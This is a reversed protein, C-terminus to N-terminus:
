DRCAVPRTIDVGTFEFRAGGDESETVRVEWGHAEAISEVISLGLGTGQETTSYGRELVSDRETEPIGPGDDAVYFGDALGGVTVTVDASGHDLANRLLNELLQRLRDPDACVASDTDVVLTGDTTEITHWCSRAFEALSVQEVTDIVTGDHALTLLDAILTEMRDHARAVTDLHESKTEDRALELRLQAVNLPNRLDHSVVSAFEELHENSRQLDRRAIELEQERTKRATIDRLLIVYGRPSPGGAIDSVRVSYHRSDEDVSLTVEGPSEGDRTVDLQPVFASVPTGIGDADLDPVVSEAADNYDVLRTDGDVIFLPDEIEAVVVDRAIPAIDSFAHEFVAYAVGFAFVSIGLPAHNYTPVPTWGFLSAVAPVFGVSIGTALLITQARSQYRVAVLLEWLYYMGVTLGALVYALGVVRAPGVATEVHPFPDSHFVMSAYYLDHFPMTLVVGLLALYCLAFLRVVTNERPNRGTYAAVFVVWGLVAFLGAATWGVALWEQATRGPVFVGAAALAAWLTLAAMLTGFWQRSRMETRRVVWYGLGATLAATGAYAGGYWLALSGPYM